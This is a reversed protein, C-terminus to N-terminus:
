TNQNEALLSQVQKEIEDYNGEGIHDYRIYGNQDVLYQRPWYHNGFASWTNYDNDLVVPYKIGFKEVADMVNKPDKEVFTEPTHVGIILLGKDSYKSDLETMHPLTHICNICNFTWFDYLIVKGKMQQKLEDPTTNIYGTIGILSPAKQFKSQDVTSHTNNVNGTMTHNTKNMLHGIAHEMDNPMSNDKMKM